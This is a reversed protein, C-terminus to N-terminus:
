FDLVYLAGAAGAWGTVWARRGVVQVATAVAPLDISATVTPVAPDSVDYLWVRGGTQGAGVAVLVSGAADVGRIDRYRDQGVLAPATPTTVDLVALGEAAVFLLNGELDLGSGVGGNALGSWSGLPTAGPARPNAVSFGAVAGGGSLLWAVAGDASVAVDKVSTSWTIASLGRGGAGGDGPDATSAIGLMGESVYSKRGCAVFAVEGRLLLKGCDANFGHQATVRAAAMSRVDLIKFSGVGMFAWSDRTAIGRGTSHPSVDLTGLLAPAAPNGVDVMAYGPSDIAVHARAGDVAVDRAPSPLALTGVLRLQPAPAQYRVTLWRFDLWRWRGDVDGETYVGVLNDGPQLTLRTPGAVVPSQAWFALNRDYITTRWKLDSPGEAELDLQANTRLLGDVLEARANNTDVEAAFYGVEPLWDDPQGHEFRSWAAAVAAKDTFGWTGFYAFRTFNSAPDGANLAGSYPAFGGGDAFLYSLSRPEECTLARWPWNPDSISYSHGADTARKAFALLAHGVEGGDPRDRWITVLQPSQTVYLAASLLKTTLSPDRYQDRAHWESVAALSVAPSKQVWVALQRARADDHEFEQTVHSSARGSPRGDGKEVLPEGGDRRFAQHYYLASVVQGECQGTPTAFSGRNTMAWDDTGYVFDTSVSEDLRVHAILLAAFSTFHRTLFTIGGAKPLSAMGELVGLQPDWAFVMGFETPSEPVPLFIEIPLAAYGAEGVDLEVLDSGARVDALEVATIAAAWVRLSVPAPWAGAPVTITAGALMGEGVSFVGGEVPVQFTAIPQRPGFTLPGARGGDDISGPPACQCSVLGGVLWLATVLRALM